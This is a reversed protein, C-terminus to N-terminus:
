GTFQGWDVAGVLSRWDMGLAWERGEANGGPSISSDLLARLRSDFEQPECLHLGAVGDACIGGAGFRTSLVEQGCALAEIIKLRTGGGRKLPALVLHALRLYPVVDDVEGAVAVGHRSKAHRPPRRGIVLLHADPRGPTRLPWDLRLLHDLAERNPGYDFSGCYLAVRGDGLHLGQRLDGDALGPTFLRTDVGNPLLVATRRYIASFARQDEPSVALLARAHRALRAEARRVLAALV